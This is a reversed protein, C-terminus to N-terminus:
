IKNVPGRVPLHSLFCILLLDGPGFVGLFIRGLFDGLFFRSTSWLLGFSGLSVFTLSIVQADKTWSDNLSWPGLSFDVLSIVQASRTLSDKRRSELEGIGFLGSSIELRTKFLM